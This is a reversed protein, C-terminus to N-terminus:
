NFGGMGRGSSMGGRSDSKSSSASGTSSSSKSSSSSTSKSGGGYSESGKKGDPKDSTGGGFGGLGGGLNGSLRDGMTSKQNGLGGGVTERGKPGDAAPGFGGSREGLTGSRSPSKGDTRGFGTRGGPSNVSARSAMGERASVGAVDVDSVFGGGLGLSGGLANGKVSGKTQGTFSGVGTPNDFRADIDVVQGAFDPVEVAARPGYATGLGKQSAAFSADPTGFTHPGYSPGLKGGWAPNSADLNAYHTADPSPNSVKGAVYDDVFTDLTPGFKQYNRETVDAPVTGNALPSTMNANYQSGVLTSGVPNPKDINRVSNTRNDMTGLAAAAEKIAEPNNAQIGKVTSPTLEGALTKAMASKEEPSYQRGMGAASFASPSMAGPAVAEKQTARQAKDVPGIALNERVPKSGPTAVSKLGVGKAAVGGVSGAGAISMRGAMDAEVDPDIGLPASIDPMQDDPFGADPITGVENPQIGGVFGAAGQKLGTETISNQGLGKNNTSPNVTTEMAPRLGYGRQSEQGKEAVPADMVLSRQRAEQPTLTTHKGDRSVGGFGVDYTNGGINVDDAVTRGVDKVVGKVKGFTSREPLGLTARAKDAATMNNVNWAANVAKGAMGLPGPLAGALGMGRPKDRYGFNNTMDRKAGTMGQPAESADLAGGGLVEKVTKADPPVQAATAVVKATKPIANLPIEEVVGNENPLIMYDAPNEIEKLTTLDIFTEHIDGNEDRMMRRIAMDAM